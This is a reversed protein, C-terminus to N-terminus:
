DAAFLTRVEDLETVDYWSLETEHEPGPQVGPDGVHFSVVRELPVEGAVSVASPTSAGRPSVASTVDAAGILVRQGPATAAAAEQMAQFELGEEDEQPYAARLAPTVGTAPAEALSGRDALETLHAPTLALYVRTVTSM